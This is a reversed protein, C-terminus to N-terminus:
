STDLHKVSLVPIYFIQLCCHSGNVLRLIKQVLAFLQQLGTVTHQYAPQLWCTMTQESSCDVNYCQFLRFLLLSRETHVLFLCFLWSKHRDDFYHTTLPVFHLLCSSSWMCISLALLPLLLRYLTVIARLDYLRCSPSKLCGDAVSCM